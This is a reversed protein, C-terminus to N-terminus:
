RWGSRTAASSRPCCAASCSCCCSPCSPWACRPGRDGLPRLLMWLGAAMVPAVVLLTQQFARLVGYDVSLNPVLVVLGLAAVAGLVLCTVEARRGPRLTVASGRRAALVLWVLGLLLFVQM